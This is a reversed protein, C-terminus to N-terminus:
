EGFINCVNASETAYIRLIYIKILIYFFFVRFSGINFGNSNNQICEVFSININRIEHSIYLNRNTAVLAYILPCTTECKDMYEGCKPKAKLDFPPWSHLVNRIIGNPLHSEFIFPWLYKPICINTLRM